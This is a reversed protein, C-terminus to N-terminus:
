GSVGVIKGARDVVLVDVVSADGVVRQAEDRARRAVAEAIRVGAAEAMVLVEGATNAKLAAAAMGPEAGLEELMGALLELDVGSRGSHLDMAGQALKVLKAFGGAITVRKVPHAKIYKLMGGVFDGMDLYAEIGLGLRAMAAKESTDGTSGVVHTLGMARAVDVGRHISHIWASCSYPIVIGTTGLISLGGIIGLRPNWTKEALKEGDRVSITVAFDAAVGHAEALVTVVETMMKRPVPNIAPEGVPLPLGPKTVIGVGAGAHFTVGAGAAAHAVRAMVLAGHTVDPDDGADKIIGAEAFGERMLEYALAFGPQQGGPLIITVPDAFGDGLLAGLASKTAATACAGTTWGRRLPKGEPIHEDATESM